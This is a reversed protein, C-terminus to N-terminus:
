NIVHMSSRYSFEEKERQILMPQNKKKLLVKGILLNNKDVQIASSQQIEFITFL